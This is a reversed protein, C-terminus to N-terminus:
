LIDWGKARAQNLLDKLEKASALLPRQAWIVRKARFSYVYYGFRYAFRSGDPYQEGPDIKQLVSKYHGGGGINEVEGVVRGDSWTEGTEPYVFKVRKGLCSADELQKRQKKNLKM